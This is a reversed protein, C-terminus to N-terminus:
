DHQQKENRHAAWWAELGPNIRRWGIGHYCPKRMERAVIALTALLSAAITLPWGPVGTVITAAAVALFLASWILEPKRAVRFVNCFLFFQGLVFAIVFGAWWVSKWAVAAAVSGIGLVALDIVSLRFGPRFDPHPV